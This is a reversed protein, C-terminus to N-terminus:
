LARQGKKQKAIWEERDKELKKLAHRQEEETEEKMRLETEARTPALYGEPTIIHRPEENSRPNFKGVSSGTPIAPNYFLQVFHSNYPGIQGFAQAIFEYGSNTVKTQKTFTGDKSRINELKLFGFNRLEKLGTAIAAEGEQLTAALSHASINADTSIIFFMLGISKASINKFLEHPRNVPQGMTTYPVENGNAEVKNM